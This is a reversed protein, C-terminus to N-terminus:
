LQGKVRGEVRVTVIVRFGVNCESVCVCVCVCVCMLISVSMVFM